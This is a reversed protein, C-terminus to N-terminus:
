RYSIDLDVIDWGPYRKAIYQEVAKKEKNETRFSKGLPPTFSTSTSSSGKRLKVKVNGVNYLSM